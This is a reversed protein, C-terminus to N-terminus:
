SFWTETLIKNTDVTKCTRLISMSNCSVWLCLSINPLLNHKANCHSLQWMPSCFYSNRLAFVPCSVSAVSYIKPANAFNRFAVILKTMDMRIQRDTRECPFFRSGSSPKGSFKINAYKIPQYFLLNILITCSNVPVESFSRHVNITTHRYFIRLILFTESLLKKRVLVPVGPARACVCVCVCAVIFVYPRMSYLFM